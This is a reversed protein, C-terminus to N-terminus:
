IRGKQHQPCSANHCIVCCIDDDDGTQTDHDADKCEWCPGYGGFDLLPVGAEMAAEIKDQNARYHARRREQAEWINNTSEQFSRYYEPVCNPISESFIM